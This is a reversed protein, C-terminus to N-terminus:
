TPTPLIERIDYGYSKNFNRIASSAIDRSVFVDDVGVSYFYEYGNAALNVAIDNRKKLRNHHYIDHEVDIVSFTYTKFDITRIIECEDGDIDVSLYDIHATGAESLIDNVNSSGNAHKFPDKFLKGKRQQIILERFAPQIEVLVGRWDLQTELGYTNSYTIPHSAGIDVFVGDRKAEFIDYVFNDQGLQSYSKLGHRNEKYTNGLIFQILLNHEDNIRGNIYGLHSKITNIDDASFNM